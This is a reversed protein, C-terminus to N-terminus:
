VKLRLRGLRLARFYLYILIVTVSFIIVTSAGAQGFNLFYFMKEYTYYTLLKTFNAPGGSTIVYIPDFVWLAMLSAYVLVIFIIPKLWNFTVMKFRALTKAGDILAAEYLEPPISQIGALLLLTPLPTQVWLYALAVILLAPWKMSLWSQYVDILGLKVMVDNFLGFNLDFMFRYISGSVVLPVGWPILALVQMFKVGRFNRSLLLAEGLSVLTILPITILAFIINSTVSIKFVSDSILDVFNGLGTFHPAIASKLNYFTVSLYFAYGLPYFGFLFLPTLAPILCILLAKIKPNV